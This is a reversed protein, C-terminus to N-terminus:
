ASRAAARLALWDRVKVPSGYAMPHVTRDIYAIVAPLAGRTENDARRFATFADGSLLAHMTDGPWLGHMQYSDIAYRVTPPIRDPDLPDSM